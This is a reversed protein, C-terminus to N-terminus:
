GHPRGIVATVGGRALTSTKRGAEAWGGSFPIPAVEYVELGAAVPLAAQVAADVLAQDGEIKPDLWIDWWDRPLPVANRDHIHLLEDVADSTLITTTLTWRDPHDAPLAHNKWWSYLGAFVLPEGAPDHM